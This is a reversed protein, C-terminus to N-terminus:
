VKLFDRILNKLVRRRYDATARIDDIPAIATDILRASTEFAGTQLYAATFDDLRIVTPAVAGAAIKLESFEPPTGQYSFALNVVSIAMSRRLGVKQFTSAQRVRPLVIGTLLEGQNLVTKGPGSIFAAVPLERSGDPGALEVRADL